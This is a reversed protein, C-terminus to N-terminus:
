FLQETFAAKDSSIRFSLTMFYYFLPRGWLYHTSQCIHTSSFTMERKCRQFLKAMQMFVIEDFSLFVSIHVPDGLGWDGGSGLQSVDQLKAAESLFM